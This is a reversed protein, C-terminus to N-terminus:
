EGERNFAPLFITFRSDDPHPARRLDGAEVLNSLHKKVTSEGADIAAAVGAPTNAAGSLVAALVAAETDRGPRYGRPRGNRSQRTKSHYAGVERATAHNGKLGAM